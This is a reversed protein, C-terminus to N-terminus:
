VWDDSGETGWEDDDTQANNTPTSPQTEKAAAIALMKNLPSNQDSSAQM